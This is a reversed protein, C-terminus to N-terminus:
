DQFGVLEQSDVSAAADLIDVLDQHAAQQPPELREALGQIAPSDQRVWLVVIAQFAAIDVLVLHAVLAQIDQFAM